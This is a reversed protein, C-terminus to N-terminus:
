SSTVFNFHVTCLLVRVRSSTSYHLTLTYLAITYTDHVRIYRIRLTRLDFFLDAYRYQATSHQTLTRHETSELLVCFNKGRSTPLKAFFDFDAFGLRRVVARSPIPCLCVVAPTHLCSASERLFGLPPITRMCGHRRRGTRRRGTVADAGPRILVSASQRLAAAANRDVQLM